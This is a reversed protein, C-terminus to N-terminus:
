NKNALLAEIKELRTKLADNEASLEQVAKVLPVVFEAYRIAYFSENENKPKDVGSFDYGMKEAVQAVEQAVFGTYVVKSKEDMARKMAPNDMPDSVAKNTSGTTRSGSIRTHIKQVDLNYTVPKLKN